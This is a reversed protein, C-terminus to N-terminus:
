HFDDGAPFRIEALVENSPDVHMYYRESLMTFDQLGELIPDESRLLHVRHEVIDGPHAVFQGGTMFQYDTNSRFADGMGGHWGAIGAGERVAQLLGQEEEASLSGMTWCPVILDYAKMEEACALLRTENVITLDFGLDQLAPEFRKVCARPEHGEWGGWFILAKKM